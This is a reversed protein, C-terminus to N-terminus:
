GNVVKLKTQYLNELMPMVVEERFNRTYEHQGVHPLSIDIDIYVSFGMKTARDCFLYDEGVYQGDVIEFDFVASMQENKAKNEYTWEPHAAVMKEIVHRQILMFGTGVRKVRMLSGDFELEGNEDYYLDTFFNKDNARRPYAGATIDRGGSQAMLRLIDDATVIVDADIFLLETADSKLFEHVLANRAMTIISCNSLDSLLTSVGLQHAKPMLQALAFATKINLKGDYAPIGIFLTRGALTAKRTEAM